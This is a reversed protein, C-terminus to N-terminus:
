MRQTCHFLWKGLEKHARKSRFVQTLGGQLLTIQYSTNLHHKAKGSLPDQM